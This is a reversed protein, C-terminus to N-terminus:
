PERRAIGYHDLYSKFQSDGKIVDDILFAILEKYCADAKESDIEAGCVDRLQRAKALLSAHYIRHADIDPFGLRVLIKEEKAFHRESADIFDQVLSIIPGADRKALGERIAEVLAFLNRHDSDIEPHGTEYSPSWKLGDM